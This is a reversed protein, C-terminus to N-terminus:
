PWTSVMEPMNLLLLGYAFKTWHRREHSVSERRQVRFPILGHIREEGPDRRERDGENEDWPGAHEGAVEGRRQARGRRRHLGELLDLRWGSLAVVVGPSASLTNRM